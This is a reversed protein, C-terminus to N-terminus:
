EEYGLMPSWCPSVNGGDRTLRRLESGDWRMVYIDWKGSRNSAFTLWMGNPSWSPDENSGRGDTLQRLNEGNVDISFIQFGSSERSVYVILDGRPSWAPSANYNGEYTLRRVNGGDADMIYIQPTGSRNSNFAMERGNPSWAPSTDIAPNYTIRQQKGSKWDMTYIEPNGDKTLTLAIKNEDPSWAPASHLGYEKSANVARGDKLRLVHLDPNGARYSTFAIYNGDSSWCPSLNISGNGTVRRMGFGDYDVVAIEKAGNMNNVFAIETSAIGRDGTLYFSIEDAVRHGLERVHNPSAKHTKDLIRRNSLMEKLLVNLAVIREASEVSAELLLPAHKPLNGAKEAPSDDNGENGEPHALDIVKFYGSLELDNIIIRRVRDSIETERNAGFPSVALVIKRVGESRVKMHVDEQARSEHICLGLMGSIFVPLWRMNLQKVM